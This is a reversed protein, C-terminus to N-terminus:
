QKRNKIPVTKIIGNKVNINLMLNEMLEKEVYMVCILTAILFEGFLGTVM